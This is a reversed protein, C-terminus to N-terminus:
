GWAGIIVVSVRPFRRDRSGFCGSQGLPADSLTGRYLRQDPTESARSLSAYTVGLRRRRLDIESATM